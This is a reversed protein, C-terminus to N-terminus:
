LFLVSIVVAVFFWEVYYPTDCKWAENESGYLHQRPSCYDIREGVDNKIPYTLYSGFDMDSHSKWGLWIAIKIDLNRIM